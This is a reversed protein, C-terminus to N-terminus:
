PGHGDRVNKSDAPVGMAKLAHSCGNIGVCPSAVILRRGLNALKCFHQDWQCGSPMAAVEAETKADTVARVPAASDVDADAATMVRHLAHGSDLCKTIFRPFFTFVPFVTPLCPV